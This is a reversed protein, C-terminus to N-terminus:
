WQSIGLRPAMSGAMWGALDVGSGWTWIKDDEKEAYQSYEHFTGRESMFAFFWMPVKDNKIYWSASKGEYNSYM